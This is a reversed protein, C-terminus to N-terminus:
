VASTQAGEPTGYFLPVHTESEFRKAADTMADRKSEEADHLVVTWLVQGQQVRYRLRCRVAYSDGGVFVPIGLLFGNPISLPEGKEGAHTETFALTATGNDRRRQEVVKQDVRISLGEALKLVENPAAFTVGQLRVEPRAAPDAIDAVGDELLQAFESVSLGHSRAAATWRKWADSLPFLYVARHDGWGGCGQEPTPHANYVVEIRPRAVDLLDCYAETQESKHRVTHAILSSLVAHTSTGKARKPQPLHKDVVAELDHLTLDKHAVLVAGKETTFVAPETHELLTTRLEEMTTSPDNHLRNLLEEMTTSLDDNLRGADHEEIFNSFRQKSM